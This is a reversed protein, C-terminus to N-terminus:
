DDLSAIIAFIILLTAAAGIGIGIGIKAGTSLNKGGISRVDSYKVTNAKGAKDVVTFEDDTVQSLYGDYQTGSYLKAKVRVREGTGMKKLKQEVEIARKEEKTQTQAVVGLAFIPFVLALSFVSASIKRMMNKNGAELNRLVYLKAFYQMKRSPTPFFAGRHYGRVM